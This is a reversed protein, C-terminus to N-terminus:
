SISSFLSTLHCQCFSHNLWLWRLLGVFECAAVNDIFEQFSMLLFVGQEEIMTAIQGPKFSGDCLIDALAERQMRHGDAPGVAMAALRECENRDEIFFVISEVSLPNYGDTQILSLFMKFNFAGIRPNILVDSRRNQAIDRFNGPGQSFYTSSLM